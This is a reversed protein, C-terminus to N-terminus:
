DQWRDHDADPPDHEGGVGSNVVRIRPVSSTQLDVPWNDRGATFSDGLALITPRSSEDLAGPPNFAALDAHHFDIWQGRYAAEILVAAATLIVLNVLVLAM